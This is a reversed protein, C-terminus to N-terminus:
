ALPFSSSCCYLVGVCNRFPAIGCTRVPLTTTLKAIGFTECGAIRGLRDCTFLRDHTPSALRRVVPSKGRDKRAAHVCTCMFCLRVLGIHSLCFVRTSWYSKFLLRASVWYFLLRAFFFFFLRANVLIISKFWYIHSLGARRCRQGIHSLGADVLGANVLGKAFTVM